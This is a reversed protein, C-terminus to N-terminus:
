ERREVISLLRACDKSNDRYKSLLYNLMKSQKRKLFLTKNLYFKQYLKDIFEKRRQNSNFRLTYLIMKSKQVGEVRKEVGFEQEFIEGLKTMFPKSTGYLAFTMQQTKESYSIQGDGDFFGRIFDWLFENPIKEFPFEFVSDFTKRPTINYSELDKNMIHSTWEITLSGKHNTGRKDVFPAKYKPEKTPVIYQRFWNIVEKDDEQLHVAFRYSEKCRAGLGYSGDALFFGLLYAKEESDIIRFFDDNVDYKRKM